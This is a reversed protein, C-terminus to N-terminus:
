PQRRRAAASGEIGCCALSLSVAMGSDSRQSDLISAQRRPRSRGAYRWTAVPRGLMSAMAEDVGNIHAARGCILIPSQTDIPGNLRAVYRSTASVETAIDQLWPEIEDLYHQEGTPTGCALLNRCLGCGNENSLAILGGSLELLLVASPTMSTLMPAAHLLAVGHPLIRQVHYGVSAIAEAIRCAASEATAAIVYQDTGTVVPWKSLHADSQFISTAFMSDCQSQSAQIETKPTTQYHIWPTPLAVVAINRDGDVCRPLRESLCEVVRDVWDPQPAAQPDVPLQFESQSLWRLAPNGTSTPTRDHRAGFTAVNVRDIGIDIGVYRTHNRTLPRQWRSRQTGSSQTAPALM